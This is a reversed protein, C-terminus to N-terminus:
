MKKRIALAFNKYSYQMKIVEANKQPRNGIEANNINEPM